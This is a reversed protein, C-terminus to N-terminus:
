PIDFVRKQTKRGHPGFWLTVSAGHMFSCQSLLPSIVRYLAEADPGYMYFDGESGDERVDHGEYVGVGADSIQSRLQDELAFMLQFNTSGYAFHVMVEHELPRHPVNIKPGFLKSLLGM